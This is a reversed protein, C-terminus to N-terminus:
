EAIVAVKQTRLKEGWGNRRRLVNRYVRVRKGLFHGVEHYTNIRAGRAKM